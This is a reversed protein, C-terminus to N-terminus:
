AKKSFLSKGSSVPPTEEDVDVVETGADFPVSDDLQISEMPVGEGDDLSVKKSATKKPATEVVTNEAGQTIDITASYAIPNRTTAIDVSITKGETSIGLSGIYNSIAKVIEDQSIIIKM